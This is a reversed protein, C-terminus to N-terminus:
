SIDSFFASVGITRARVKIKLSESKSLFYIQSSLYNDPVDVHYLYM